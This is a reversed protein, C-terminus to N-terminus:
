LVEKKGTVYEYIVSKKYAEMEALLATKKAILIDMEACKEDLYDAIEKQEEYSPVPITFNLFKDAQLRWRGMGSVGQGLSYFIRNTYCMQMLYLYYKSYNKETDLLVFVRYDPSTVGNYQSIDVWGTLLDMHNMAFDGAEVLQYNSYNEALQGENSAINKPLIGKQTISLVTYGEKGAIDKKIRFIYKLKRIDWGSPIKGYWQNNSAKMVCNSRVGKTIAESVLAQRLKKYEEITTKTKHIISDVQECFVDLFNAIREQEDLEPVPIFQNKLKTATILPQATGSLMYNYDFNPIVYALYRQNINNTHLVLANDTIWADKVIHTTGVTGVRGTTIVQENNNTKNVRGIEGNSGIIPYIGNDVYDEKSIIEGSSIKVFHKVKQFNWQVPIEGMWEIGTEKMQRMMM